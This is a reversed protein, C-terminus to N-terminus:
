CKSCKFDLIASLWWKFATLEYYRMQVPVASLLFIIFSIDGAVPDSFVSGLILTSHLINEYLNCVHLFPWDYFLFMDFLAMFEPIGNISSNFSLLLIM